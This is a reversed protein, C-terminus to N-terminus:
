RVAEVARKVMPVSSCRMGCKWFYPGMEKETDIFYQFNYAGLVVEKACEGITWVKKYCSRARTFGYYIKGSKM